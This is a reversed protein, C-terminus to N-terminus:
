RLVVAWCVVVACSCIVVEGFMMILLVAVSVIVCTLLMDSAMLIFVGDLTTCGNELWESNILRDIRLCKRQNKSMM